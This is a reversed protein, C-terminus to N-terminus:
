AISREWRPLPGRVARSSEFSAKRVQQNTPNSPFFSGCPSTREASLADSISHMPPAKLFQSNQARTCRLVSRLSARWSAILAVMADALTSTVDLERIGYTLKVFTWYTGCETRGVVIIGVDRRADM